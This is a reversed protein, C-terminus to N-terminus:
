PTEPLLPIEFGDGEADPTAQRPLGDLRRLSQRAEFAVETVSSSQMNNLAARVDPTDYWGLMEVAVRQLAPDLELASLLMPVLREHDRAHHLITWATPLLGQPTEPGYRSQLTKALGAVEALRKADAGRVYAKLLLIQDGVDLTDDLLWPELKSWVLRDPAQLLVKVAAARVVPWTDTVDLSTVAMKFAVDRDAHALGLLAFAYTEPWRSSKLLAALADAVAAHRARSPQSLVDAAAIRVSPSADKLADILAPHPPEFALADLAYVAELREVAVAGTRVVEVLLPVAANLRFAGLVRITLVRIALTEHRILAILAAPETVEPRTDLSRWRPATRLLAQLFRRRTTDRLPKAPIFRTVEPVIDPGINALASLLPEVRADDDDSVRDIVGLLPAFRGKGPLRSRQIAAAIFAPSDKELSALRRQLVAATKKPFRKLLALAEDALVPDAHPHMALAAVVPLRRGDPWRSVLGLVARLGDNDTITHLRQLVKEFTWARHHRLIDAALKRNLPKPDTLATDLFHSLRTERDDVDADTLLTLEAFQLGPPAEILVCTAAADLPILVGRTQQMELTGAMALDVNLRQEGVHLSLPGDAKTAPVLLLASPLTLPHPALVMRMRQSKNVRQPWRTRVDADDLTDTTVFSRPSHGQLAVHKHSARTLLAPYTSQLPTGEALWLTPVVDRANAHTSPMPEFRKSKLNYRDTLLMTLIAPECAPLSFARARRVVDLVGDGDADEVVVQVPDRLVDRTGQWLLTDHELSGTGVFLWHRPSSKGRHELTTAFLGQGLSQRRARWEGRPSANLPVKLTRLVTGAADQLMWVGPQGQTASVVLADGALEFSVKDDACLASGNLWLAAHFFALFAFFRGM